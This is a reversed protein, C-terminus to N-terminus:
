KKYHYWLSQLYDLILYVLCKLKKTLEVKFFMPLLVYMGAIANAASNLNLRVGIIWHCILIVTIYIYYLLEIKNIFYGRKVLRYVLLSSLTIAMFPYSLPRMPAFLFALISIGLNLVFSCISFFIVANYNFEKIEINYKKYCNNDYKGNLIFKFFNKIKKM